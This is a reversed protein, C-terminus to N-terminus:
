IIKNKFFSDANKWFLKELVAENVGREKLSSYVSPIKEIGNLDTHVTCGDFDSGFSLVDECGLSLMYEIQEYLADVGQSKESEIFDRCFNLGILGNREKIIRIQEDNLNRKRGYENNVIDANSHSAIFPKQSLEAFEFFSRRNLHSVDLTIGLREAEKIFEKGFETFGGESFAGCAIENPANWTLTILRVGKDYLHYLGEITGGCASGGEVALIAKVSTNKDDGYISILDNNKEIESYFNNVTKNFYEVAFNKRLEDPIWIAFVQTYKYLAKARELDIHLDNKRLSLNNNSCEGITDCHLDFYRMAVESPM